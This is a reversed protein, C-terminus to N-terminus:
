SQSSNPAPVTPVPPTAPQNQHALLFITGGLLSALATITIGYLLGTAAKNNERITHRDSQNEPQLHHELDQGHIYGDRYALKNLRGMGDNTQGPVKTKDTNM